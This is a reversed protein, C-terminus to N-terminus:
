DEDPPASQRPLGEVASLMREEFSTLREKRQRKPPPGPPPVPLIVPRNSPVPLPQSELRAAAKMWMMPPGNAREKELGSSSAGGTAEVFTEEPPCPQQQGVDALECCLLERYAKQTLPREGRAVALEKHLLFSNVVSIDVFHLFLKMYWRRTKQTVSFYKILADSLDVGGMSKNYAGVPEPIPVSERSWIGTQKNKVWRATTKGAYAKHITFCM